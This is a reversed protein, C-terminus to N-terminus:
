CCRRADIPLRNADASAEGPRPSRMLIDSHLRTARAGANVSSATAPGINWTGSSRSRVAWAELRRRGRLRGAASRLTQGDITQDDFVARHFEDVLGSRTSLRMSRMASVPDSEAITSSARFADARQALLDQAGLEFALERAAAHDAPTAPSSNM